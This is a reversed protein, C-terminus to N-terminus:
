RLKAWSFTLTLMAQIWDSAPLLSNAAQTPLLLAPLSRLAWRLWCAPRSRIGRLEM